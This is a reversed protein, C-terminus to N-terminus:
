PLYASYDDALEIVAVGFATAQETSTFSAACYPPLNGALLDECGVSGIGALCERAGQRATNVEDFAVEAAYLDDSVCGSTFAPDLRAVCAEYPDGLADIAAQPVTGDFQALV